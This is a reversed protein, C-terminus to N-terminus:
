DEAIIIVKDTEDFVVTNSKVPNVVVGYAKDANHAFKNLRYGIAIEGRKAASAAVTHFSIEKGIQVYDSVPKVYIESGEADFLDDFVAKLEKNESLQSLMLSILKNSIIFDDAKTVEALEKNRIDLMESVISFHSNSREAINRLHLLTILTKSDAEEANINDRYCLIIIHNFSDLNLSELTERDTTHGQKLEIKLNVLSKKLLNIDDKIDLNDSVILIESDKAVYNDLEKIISCGTVNWGLILTKEKEAPIKSKAAFLSEDINYNTNASVKITDDDESIAIVCDGNQLVTEM